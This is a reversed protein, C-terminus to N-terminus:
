HAHSAERRRFALPSTGRWRRFARDFASAESYGLRFAIESISLDARRLYSISHERRVEEVIANYAQGQDRLRRQLTRAGMGLRRAVEALAAGEALSRAVEARVRDILGDREASSPLLEDMKPRLIQYLRRDACENSRGLDSRPFILCNAEMGFRVPSGFFGEHEQTDCSREHAFHTEQPNWDDGIIARIGKCIRTMALEAEQCPITEESGPPAEFKLLAYDNDKSLAFRLGKRMVSFYQIVSGLAEGLTGCNLAAFGLVGYTKPDFDSGLHLGFLPDDTAEVALDLLRRFTEQDIWVSPDSVDELRLGAARFVSQADGTAATIRAEVGVLAAARVSAEPHTPM